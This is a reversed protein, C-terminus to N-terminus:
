GVMPGFALGVRDRRGAPLERRARRARRSGVARAALTGRLARRAAIARRLGGRWGSVPGAALVGAEINDFFSRTGHQMLPELWARAYEGDPTEPWPLRHLTEPTYIEFAKSM